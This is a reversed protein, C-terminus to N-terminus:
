LAVRSSGGKYGCCKKTKKGSGCPCPQNRGATSRATRREMLQLSRALLLRGEEPGASVLGRSKLHMWIRAYLGEPCGPRDLEAKWANIQAHVAALSRPEGTEASMHVDHFACGYPAVAHVSCRGDKTLWHCVHKGPQRAPVLSPVRMQEHTSAIRAVAGPSARLHHEAWALPDEGAPVMRDLDSPVLAGPLWRCCEKCKQCACITRTFGFETRDM